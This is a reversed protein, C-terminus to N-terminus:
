GLRRAFLLRRRETVGLAVLLLGVVVYFGDGDLWLWVDQM